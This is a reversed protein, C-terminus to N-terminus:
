TGPSRDGDDTKWMSGAPIAFSQACLPCKRRAPVSSYADLLMDLRQGMLLARHELDSMHGRLEFVLSLHEERLLFGHLGGGEDDLMRQKAGDEAEKGMLRNKDVDLAAELDQWPVEEVICGPFDVDLGSIPKSEERCSRVTDRPAEVTTLDELNPDEEVICAPYMDETGDEMRATDAKSCGAGKEAITSLLAMKEARAKKRLLSTAMALAREFQEKRRRQAKHANWASGRRPRGRKRTMTDQPHTLNCLTRLSFCSLWSAPPPWNLARAPRSQKLVSSSLSSPSDKGILWSLITLWHVLLASRCWLRWVLLLASAPAYSFLYGSESFGYGGKVEFMSLVGLEYITARPLLGEMASRSSHGDRMTFASAHTAAMLM